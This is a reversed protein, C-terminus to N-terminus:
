RSKATAYTYRAIEEHFGKLLLTNLKDSLLKEEFQELVQRSEDTLRGRRGIERMIKVGEKALDKTASTVEASTMEDELDYYVDTLNMKIENFSLEQINDNIPSLLILFVSLLMDDDKTTSFL